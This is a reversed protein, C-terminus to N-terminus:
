AYRRGSNRRRIRAVCIRSDAASPATVREAPCYFPKGRQSAHYELVQAAAEIRIRFGPVLAQTYMRGPTPCGIAGNSWTVAEASAVKLKSVELGSRRAADDLALQIMSLLPDSPVATM